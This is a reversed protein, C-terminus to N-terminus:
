CQRKGVIKISHHRNYGCACVNVRSDLWCLLVYMRAGISSRSRLLWFCTREAALQIAIFCHAHTHANIEHEVCMCMCWEVDTQVHLVILIFMKRRKREKKERKGNKNVYMNHQTEIVAETHRPNLINCDRELWHESNTHTNFAACAYLRVLVSVCLQSSAQVSTWENTRKCM